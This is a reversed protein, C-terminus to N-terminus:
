HGQESKGWTWSAAEVEDRCSQLREIIEDIFARRREASWGDMEPNLGAKLEGEPTQAIFFVIVDEEECVYGGDKTRIIWEERTTPTPGCFFPPGKWGTKRSLPRRRPRM